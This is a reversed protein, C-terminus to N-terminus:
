RAQHLREYRKSINAEAPNPESRPRTVLRRKVILRAPRIPHRKVNNQSLQCRFAQHCQAKQRRVDEQDVQQSPRPSRHLTAMKTVQFHHYWELPLLLGIAPRRYEM